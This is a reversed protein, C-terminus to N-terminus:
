DIIRGTLWFHGSVIGGTQPENPILKVDAVVDIEGGFTEVLLWYFKEGSLTNTKLEFEKIEGTLMGIPRVVSLDISEDAADFEFLGNPVFSK